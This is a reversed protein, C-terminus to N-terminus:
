HFWLVPQIFQLAFLSLINMDQGAPVYELQWTTAYVWYIPVQLAFYYSAILWRWSNRVPSMFVVTLPLLYTTLLWIIGGFFFLILLASDDLLDLRVLTHIKESDLAISHDIASKVGVLYEHMFATVTQSLALYTTMSGLTFPLPRSMGVTDLNQSFLLWLLGLITLCFGIFLAVSSTLHTIVLQNAPMSRASTISLMLAIITLNFVLVTIRTRSVNLAIENQKHQQELAM